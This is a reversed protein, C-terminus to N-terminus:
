YCHNQDKVVRQLDGQKKREIYIERVSKPDQGIKRLSEEQHVDVEIELSRIVNLPSQDLVSAFYDFIVQWSPEPDITHRGERVIPCNVSSLGTVTCTKQSVGLKDSGELENFKDFNQFHQTKELELLDESLNFIVDLKRIFDVTKQDKESKAEVDDNDCMPTSAEPMKDWGHFIIWRWVPQNLRVQRVAIPWFLVDTWQVPSNRRHDRHSIPVDDRFCAGFPNKSNQHHQNGTPHEGVAHIRNPWDKLIHVFGGLFVLIQEIM